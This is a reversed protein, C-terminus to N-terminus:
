KWGNVWNKRGARKAAPSRVIPTQKKPQPPAEQAKESTRQDSARAVAKTVTKMDKVLKQLQPAAAQARPHAEMRERLRRFSPNMIKLAALAYQRCDLAENRAKDPKHWERVPQGRVFRTILREATLQKLWEDLGERDAPIHCYGPGPKEKALRRMVMLKAEDSAVRFLDVKRANKGSKKRIVKEVIPSGFSPAYGKVGFLRRGTKGKLYDYAAQTMGNTGGTDLCAAMIPMVAGTEHVFTEVLLDDLDEWVEGDEPAGWLVWYGVSWSEEGEGWAVVEVELRDMQMDVGATLYLGGMPVEAAYTEARKKLGTPDVTEAAAEYTLALSVNVFTNYSDSKVKSLYSKVVDRLFRFPSYLESLHFSAHGNFPKSAIWEGTRVSAKRDADDWLAGCHECAYAATDPQHEDFAADADVDPAGDAALQRGTWVVNEWKMVQKEGCHQCPIWFKRCDGQDHAKEIRSFEKVTPTSAEVHLVQGTSSFSAARQRLLEVQDGEDKDSDAPRPLGDIEDALTVPASRGRLSTLSGGHSFMLWGGIFSILRANNQGERGRPKAMKATIARNADLMPQLKTARFTQVDAETPMMWIMSRPDHAVFFATIAQQITTKGTQAALMYSVRDVGPETIVDVMGRQYAAADFRIPGPAANGVPILINQEAWVSPLIDPPPVLQELARQM